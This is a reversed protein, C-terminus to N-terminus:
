DRRVLGKRWAYVAAQTRDALHLKSLINSVHGKVTSESIVLQSALDSNSLGEAILKLVELERDTLETFPNLELHRAGHLEQIVRSAVRPDLTAEGHAASKIADALENMKVDKLIYSTAGAQLAPFIHEDEHYSTLVIIHTRPSINKVQRTAEVGDMGPMILDMLIVDPVHEGALRVAAEGSEAEAVVIFDSRAELSARLGQRVVQHDDVLLVTIRKDMLNGRIPKRQHILQCQARSARVRVLGAKLSSSAVWHNRESRCRDYGWGEIRGDAEFGQGNDDITLRVVSTNYTLLIEVHTAQSHRAVNALAEQIIRFLTQETELSLIHEGQVRIEPTIGNQRSWGAAYDSVAPVLGKGQLAVPRLEQILTTLERRLEDVLRVAETVHNSAAKPDQTILAQVADLQAAAAFAQQKASDYLDRALRNREEVVALERRTDLLNQLQEAMSNLRRALLGLEDGSTDDVLVSFDGQSWAWTAEALRDFRRVLGRAALYGFPTGTLGAIVTFILLSIGVVPLAEGVFSWVTPVETLGIVVGLVQQQDADWVPIAIVVNGGPKELTYLREIDETGALAAQLPSALGPIAQPDLPQGIVDNGLLDTPMSGLLTGDSGVVLIEDTADFSLPLTGSTANRVWTLWEGIGEQDPPTQALYSQLTPTVQDTGTEILLEPLVGSNLLITLGIGLVALLIFELSLLAGVTVGTYSLTLKWRLQQFRNTRSTRINMNVSYPLVSDALLHLKAVIFDFPSVGSRTSQATLLGWLLHPRFATHQAARSRYDDGM